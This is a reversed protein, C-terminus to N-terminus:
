QGRHRALARRARRLESRTYEAMRKAEGRELAMWRELAVFAALKARRRDAEISQWKVSEALM